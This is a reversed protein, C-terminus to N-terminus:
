KHPLVQGDRVTKASAKHKIPPACTMPPGVGCVELRTYCQLGFRALRAAQKKSRIKSYVIVRHPPLSVLLLPCVMHDQLGDELDEELVRYGGPHRDSFGSIYNDGLDAGSKHPFRQPIPKAWKTVPYRRGGMFLGKRYSSQYGDYQYERNGDPKLKGFELEYRFEFNDRLLKSYAEVKFIHAEKWNRCVCSEPGKIMCDIPAGGADGLPSQVCEKNEADWVNPLTCEDEKEIMPLTTLNKDFQEFFSCRHAAIGPTDISATDTDNSATDGSATDNSATDNSATDNSAELMMIRNEAKHALILSRLVHNARTEQAALKSLESTHATAHMGLSAHMGLRARRGRGHHHVLRREKLREIEQEITKAKSLTSLESRELVKVLSGARSTAAQVPSQRFPVVGGRLAQELEHM